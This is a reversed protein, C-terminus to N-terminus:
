LSLVTSIAAMPLSTCLAEGPPPYPKCLPVDIAAACTLPEAAATSNHTYKVLFATKYNSIIEPPLLHKHALYHDRMRNLNEYNKSTLRYKSEM